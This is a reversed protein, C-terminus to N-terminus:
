EVSVPRYQIAEAVHEIRIHEAGALDAITRAVKLIRYYSRASLGFRNIATKMCGLSAEDLPCYKKVDKTSLDANCIMDTGSYRAVQIDRCAQVRIRIVDSSEATHTTTTLKETDVFPVSVHLDIRDLMPGSIRKRYRM